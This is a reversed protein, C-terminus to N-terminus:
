QTSTIGAMEPRMTHADMGTPLLGLGSAENDSPKENDPLYIPPLMEKMNSRFEEIPKATSM